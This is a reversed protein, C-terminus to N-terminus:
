LLIWVLRQLLTIVMEWILCIPPIDVFNWFTAYVVYICKELQEILQILQQCGNFIVFILTELNVEREAFQENNKRSSIEVVFLFM